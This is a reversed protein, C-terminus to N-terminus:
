AGVRKSVSLPKYNRSVLHHYVKNMLWCALGGEDIDWGSDRCAQVLQYSYEIGVLDLNDRYHELTLYYDDEDITLAPMTDPLPDYNFVVFPDNSITLGYSGERMVMGRSGVRYSKAIVNTLRVLTIGPLVYGYSEEDGYCNIESM